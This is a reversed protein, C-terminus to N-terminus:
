CYKAKLSRYGHKYKLFQMYNKMTSRPVKLATCARGNGKGPCGQTAIKLCISCQQIQGAHQVTVRCGTDKPLPGELWYFNNFSAGKFLEMEVFRTGGMMGRNKDNTLREYHVTFDVLMGHTECLHLIEEDPINLPLNKFTVKTVNSRQRRTIIEHEMFIYNGLYPSADFEATFM